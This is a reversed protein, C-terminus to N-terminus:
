TSPWRSATSFRQDRGHARWSSQVYVGHVQCTVDRRQGSSSHRGESSLKVRYLRLTRFFPVYSPNMLRSLSPHFYKALSLVHGGAGVGGISRVQQQLMARGFIGCPCTGFDCTILMHNQFM